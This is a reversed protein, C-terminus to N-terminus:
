TRRDRTDSPHRLDAFGTSHRRAARWRRHLDLNGKGFYIKNQSKDTERPGRVSKAGPGVFNAQARFDACYDLWGREM